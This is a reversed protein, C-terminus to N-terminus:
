FRKLKKHKKQPHAEQLIHIQKKEKKLKELKLEKSQTEWVKLM